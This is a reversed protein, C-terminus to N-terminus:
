ENPISIEYSTGNPGSDMTVEGGLYKVRSEINKIGLGRKFTLDDQDFGKGNDAVKLYTRDTSQELKLQITSAEAYKVTNSLAEQIIRYINVMQIESLEPESHPLNLTVLMNYQSEMKNALDEMTAILGLDALSSPMMDHAIRRVENCANDILQEAQNFLKMEHLREIEKEINRLQQQASTLIGGLGDHLDQAIRKREEEQGQLMFDMALLKQQKELNNIREKQLIIQSENLKKKTQFQFFLLSAMIMFGVLLSILLNRQNTRKQIELQNKALSADKKSSQYKTELQQATNIKELQFASDVLLQNQEAFRYAEKYNGISAYYKQITNFINRKSELNNDLLPNALVEDIIKEAAKQDNRQMYLEILAEKVEFDRLNGFIENAKLLYDEAKQYNSREFSIKGLALLASFHLHEVQNTNAFKEVELYLKESEEYMELNYYESGLNTKLLNYSIPDETESAMNFARKYYELAKDYEEIASYVMATNNHAKIADDKKGLSDALRASKTHYSIAEHYDALYHHIVGQVIYHHLRNQPNNTHDLYIKSSDSLTKAKLIDGELAKIVASKHLMLFLGEDSPKKLVEKRYMALYYNASDINAYMYALLMENILDRKEQIDVSSRIAQRISDLGSPDQAKSSMFGFASFLLLLINLRQKMALSSNSKLSLYDLPVHTKNSIAKVLNILIPNSRSLNM